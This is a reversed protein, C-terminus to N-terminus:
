GSNSRRGPWRRLVVGLVVLGLAALMVEFLALGTYPLTSSAAAAAPPAAASLTTASPSVAAPSVTPSVHHKGGAGAKGGRVHPPLFVQPSVYQDQAATLAGSARGHHAIVSTGGYATGAFALLAGTLAFLAAVARLGGRDEARAYRGAAVVSESNRM